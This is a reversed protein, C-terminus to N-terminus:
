IYYTLGIIYANAAQSFGPYFDKPVHRAADIRYGDFGYTSTLDGIWAQLASNVFDNEQALDELV